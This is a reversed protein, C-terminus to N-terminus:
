ARPRGEMGSRVGSAATRAAEAAPLGAHKAAEEAMARAQAEGLLGERVAEGMRCAAWFALRNRQGEPAVAAARVLAALRRDPAARAGGFAAAVSPACPRPPPSLLDLLWPPPPPASGGRVFVYGPSPPVIIYGGEGRVDVGPALRGASCRVPRDPVAAFYHHLGGSRTRVLPHPPMERGARLAEFAAVGDRGGKVDLDAVVLGSPAGTPMGILAGPWRGWWDRILAADTTADHFGGPVLPAKTAPRCPFVACADAAWRLAGDLPRTM